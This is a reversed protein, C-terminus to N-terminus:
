DKKLICLVDNHIKIYFKGVYLILFELGDFFLHKEIYIKLEKYNFM